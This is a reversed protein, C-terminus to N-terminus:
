GSGKPRRRLDWQTSKQLISGVRGKGRIDEKVNGRSYTDREVENEGSCMRTCSTQQNRNEAKRMKQDQIEFTSNIVQWKLRETLVPLLMFVPKVVGLAELTRQLPALVRKWTPGESGVSQMVCLSFQRGFPDWEHLCNNQSLPSSLLSDHDVLSM